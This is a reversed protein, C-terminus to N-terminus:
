VGPGYELWNNCFVALYELDIQFGPSSYYLAYDEFDIFYDGNFDLTSTVTFTHRDSSLLWALSSDWTLTVGSVHQLPGMFGSPPSKCYGIKCYNEGINLWSLDLSTQSIAPWAYYWGSWLWLKEADIDAGNPDWIAYCEQSIMNDAGQAPEIILPNHLFDSEQLIDAITFSYVSETLSFTSHIYWTGAIFTKLENFTMVDSYWTKKYFQQSFSASEYDAMMPGKIEVSNGANTVFIIGYANSGTKDIYFDMSFPFAQAVFFLSIIFSFLLTKKM